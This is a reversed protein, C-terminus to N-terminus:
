RLGSASPLLGQLPFGASRRHNPRLDLSDANLKPRVRRRAGGRSPGYRRLGSIVGSRPSKRRGVRGAGAGVIESEWRSASGAWATARFAAGFRRAARPGKRAAASGTPAATTASQAPADLFIVSSRRWRPASQSFGRLPYQCGPVCSTREYRVPLPRSCNRFRFTLLVGVPGPDFGTKDANLKTPNKELLSM